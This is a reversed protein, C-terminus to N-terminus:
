RTEVTKEMVFNTFFVNNRGVTQEKVLVFGMKEFFPRATISAEVFLREIKQVKAKEEIAAYILRGVGKGVAHEAIYFRDIHGNPELEGFGALVDSEQAVFVWKNEFKKEWGQMDWSSLDPAWAKVQEDSYHSRNVTRITNFFLEALPLSDSKQYLRINM